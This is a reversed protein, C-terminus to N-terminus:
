AFNLASEKQVMEAQMGFQITLSRLFRICAHRILKSPHLCSSGNNIRKQVSANLLGNRKTREYTDVQNDDNQIASAGETGEVEVESDTESETMPPPDALKLDYKGEKGMRYSNTSGNDWQVRIWGDEGLEGIVRGESPSPGDQDGWKWDLGRVVRTGIGMLRALEPGSLPAPASKWRQLM